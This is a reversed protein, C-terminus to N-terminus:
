SFRLARSRSRANLVPRPPDGIVPLAILQAYPYGEDEYARVVLIADPMVAVGPISDAETSNRAVPELTVQDDSIMRGDLAHRVVRLVTPDVGADSVVRVWAASDAGVAYVGEGPAVPDPRPDTFEGPNYYQEVGLAIQDSVDVTIPRSYTGNDAPLWGLGDWWHVVSPRYQTQFARARDRAAVEYTLPNYDALEVDTDGLTSITISVQSDYLFLRSDDIRAMGSLVHVESASSGSFGGTSRVTTPDGLPM